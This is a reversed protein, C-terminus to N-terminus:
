ELHWKAMGPNTDRPIDDGYETVHGIYESSCDLFMTAHGAKPGLNYGKFNEKWYQFLYM